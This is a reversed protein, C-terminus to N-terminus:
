GSPPGSAPPHTTNYVFRNFQDMQEDKKEQSIEPARVMSEMFNYFSNRQDEYTIEESNVSVMEGANSGVNQPLKLDIEITGDPGINEVADAFVNLGLSALGEKFASTKEQQSLEQNRYVQNVTQMPIVSKHIQAAKDEIKRNAFKRMCLNKYTNSSSDYADIFTRRKQDLEELEWEAMLINMRAGVEEIPTDPPMISEIKKKTENWHKKYPLTSDVYVINDSTFRAQFADQDSNKYITAEADIYRGSYMEEIQEDTVGDNLWKHAVKSLQISLDKRSQKAKQKIEELEKTIPSQFNNYYGYMPGGYYNQYAYPNYGGARQARSRQAIQEAKWEAEAEIHKMIMDTALEEFNSPLLYETGAFNLPPIYIQQPQQQQQAFPSQAQYGAQLVPNPQGGGNPQNMYPNQYYGTQPPGYQPQQYYVNGGLGYTPSQPIYGQNQAAYQGFGANFVAESESTYQEEQPSSVQDGTYYNTKFM